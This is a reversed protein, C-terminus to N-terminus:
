LRFKNKLKASKIQKGKYKLAADWAKQLDDSMVSKAISIEKEKNIGNLIGMTIISRVEITSNSYLEGILKFLKEIKKKDKGESLLTSIKPLINNIAFEAGRFDSYHEKEFSIEERLEPFLNMMRNAFFLASSSKDKSIKRNTLNIPELNFYKRITDIFDDSIINIDKNNINNDFLWSSIRNWQESNEQQNNQMELYIEDDQPVYLIKFTLKNGHIIIENINREFSFSNNTFKQYILNYISDLGNKDM